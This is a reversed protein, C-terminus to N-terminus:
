VRGERESSGTSPVNPCCWGGMLCGNTRWGDFGPGRSLVGMCQVQKLVTRAKKHVVTSGHHSEGKLMLMRWGVGVSLTRVSLSESWCGEGRYLM